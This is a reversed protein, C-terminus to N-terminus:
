YLLSIKKSSWGERNLLTSRREQCSIWRSDGLQLPCSPSQLQVCNGVDPRPKDLYVV